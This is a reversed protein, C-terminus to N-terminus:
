KRIVEERFSELDMICTHGNGYDLQYLADTTRDGEIIDTLVAPCGNIDQLRSGLLRMYYAKIKM